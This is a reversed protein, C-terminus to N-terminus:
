FAVTMVALLDSYNGIDVRQAKVYSYEMTLMVNQRFMYDFGASYAIKDKADVKDPEYTHPGDDNLDLYAVKLGLSSIPYIQFGISKAMMSADEPEGYVQQSVPGVLYNMLLPDDIETKNKLVANLTLMSEMNFILGELQLDLGYAEKTLKVTSSSILGLLSSDFTTNNATVSGKIGYAGVILNLDGMQQELAIRSFLLATGDLEIADSGHMPVYAGITAFLINGAYFLQVGTAEGSALDAAQAASTLKQNEFQHLPKHLGTNYTEMGSFPGYNATSYLAIGSYADGTKFSSILKGGFIVKSEKERLELLTGVNNTVKGGLNLTSTKFIEYVGRNTDIAEDNSTELVLGKGNITNYGKDVRAKLMVSMNLVTSLTQASILSDSSDEKAMQYSSRAFSRGFSNLTMQNNAHCMLCELGTQRSFAPVAYLGEAFTLFLLAALMPFSQVKKM